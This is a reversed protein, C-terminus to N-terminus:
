RRRSAQPYHPSDNIREALSDDDKHSRKVRSRADFATLPAKPRENQRSEGSRETQFSEILKRSVGSSGDKSESPEGRGM